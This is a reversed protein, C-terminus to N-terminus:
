RTAATSSIAILRNDNGIVAVVWRRGDRGAITLRARNAALDDTLVAIRSDDVPWQTLGNAGVQVLAYGTAGDPSQRPWSFVLQDGVREVALVFSATPISTSIATTTPADTTARPPSTTPSTNPLNSQTTPPTTAPSSADTTTSPPEFTGPTTLTITSEPTIPQLSGPNGRRVLSTGLALLLVAAAAAVAIWSVGNSNSRSRSLQAEIENVRRDDLPPVRTSGLRRLRQELDDSM